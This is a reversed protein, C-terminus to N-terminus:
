HGIGIQVLQKYDWGLKDIFLSVHVYGDVPKTFILIPSRQTRVQGLGFLVKRYASMFNHYEYDFNDKNIGINSYTQTGFYDEYMDKITTKEFKSYYAFINNVENEPVVLEAEIYFDFGIDIGIHYNKISSKDHLKINFYENIIEM